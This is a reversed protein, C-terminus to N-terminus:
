QNTAVTPQKLDPDRVDSKKKPEPADPYKIRGHYIGTLSKIVSDQIKRIDSMLLACEDFQGDLLRKMVIGNVLSEIRKPTPETLTRCASECADAIMMVGAEPFQPKPGPYRFSSEEADTKHDPQGEAQKTAERFFYEVLTTGHHQEIFDLLPQPLGFQKGLDVGDKVHGIIILTSMAPNLQDHRSTQGAEMNEIFYQPKLMKGIDHYYAGVRALLGNGGIREAATESISAVSISHNYTGPALRVLDQLLPHAPDSLEFLTMDTVVGFANEIFPLSGAVLYGAVLCLAAGKANMVLFQTDQMVETISQTEIVAIGCGVTFYTIASLFSTKILTSRSSVRKLPIIAATATSMLVLFQNFQGTTSMTLLLALSFATITALIQNYAVSLLLVTTLLPVIEARLPDFSVIRGIFATAIIAIWFTVLYRVDNAILPENKIIYFGNLLTLVAVMFLAIAVRSARAGSGIEEEAAEYEDELLSLKDRDIFQQPDVLMDGKLYRELRPDVKERALAIETTTTAQDYRLTPSVRELLWHVIAPRIDPTLTDFIDWSYGMQGAENLQDQLRVRPLLVTRGSELEQNEKVILLRRDPTISHRRIDSPSVIGTEQIPLIFEGFEAIMSDIRAEAMDMEPGVVAKRMTNFREEPTGSGYWEPFFNDAENESSPATLAFAKRTKESLRDLSQAAAVEGLTARLEEPLLELTQPDHRFVRPVTDEARQRALETGDIDIREFEIKAAIGHEAYDGQRFSFPAKWAQLAVVLLLIAVVSVGLRGLLNRDEYIKRLRTQLTEPRSIGVSKSVRHRKPGFGFM